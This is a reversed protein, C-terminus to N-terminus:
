LAAPLHTSQTPAAQWLLACTHLKTTKRRAIRLVCICDDAAHIPNGM